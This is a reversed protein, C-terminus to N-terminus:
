KNAYLNPSDALKIAQAIVDKLWPDKAQTELKSLTKKAHKGQIGAISYIATSAISREDSLAIKSLAEV